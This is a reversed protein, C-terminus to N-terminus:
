MSGIPYSDGMCIVMGSVFLLVCRFISREPGWFSAPDELWGNEATFESNTKPRTFGGFTRLIKGGVFWFNAPGPGPCNRLQSVWSLVPFPQGKCPKMSNKLVLCIM